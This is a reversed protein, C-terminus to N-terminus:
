MGGGPLSNEAGPAADTQGSKLISMAEINLACIGRMFARKLDEELRARAVEGEQVAVKESQLETELSEIRDAVTAHAAHANERIQRQIGENMRRSRGRATVAKWWQLRVRMTNAAYIRQRLCTDLVRQARLRAAEEAMLAMGDREAADAAAAAAAAAEADRAEAERSADREARGRLEVLAMRLGDIESQKESLARDFQQRQVALQATQHRHMKRKMEALTKLTEQKLKHTQVDFNESLLEMDYDVISTPPATEDM